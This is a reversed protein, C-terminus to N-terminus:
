ALCTKKLYVIIHANVIPVIFFIIECSGFFIELFFIFFFEMLFRGNIKVLVFKYMVQIKYTGMMFKYTGMMFKYTGMMFKYTGMMFKYTGMLIKGMMIKSTGLVIKGMM